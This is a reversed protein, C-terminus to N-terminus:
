HKKAPYLKSKLQDRQAALEHYHSWDYGKGQQAAKAAAYKMDAMQEYIHSLDQYVQKQTGNAHRSQDRAARAQDMYKDGAAAFGHDSSPKHRSAKKDAKQSRAQTGDVQGTLVDRRKELAHYRDWHIDDWRGQDAKEAADRKIGAMERYISSLELYRGIAKGETRTAAKVAKSAKGDYDVAAKRFADGPKDPSYEALLWPSFLLLVLMVVTKM